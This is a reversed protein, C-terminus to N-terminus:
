YPKYVFFVVIAIGTLHPVRQQDFQQPSVIFQQPRPPNQVMQGFMMHRQPETMLMPSQNWLGTPTRVQEQLVQM